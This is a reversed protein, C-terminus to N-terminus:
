YYGLINRLGPAAYEVLQKQKDPLESPLEVSQGSLNERATGSQKRDSGIKVREKWDGPLSPLGLVSLLDAFFTEAEKSELNKLHKIVHEYKVLKVGTGLWAVANHTFIEELTPAKQYIGFIMMNLMEEISVAGNKLHDMQGQFSDSLFFRARALVWDYPDRVILLQTTSKLGRAADDSFLLHGWSLVPKKSDFAQLHQKLNPHQIFDAHYQQEVPVFMRLINRMLHTGCKPVSNIFVPHTLPHQEFNKNLENLNDSKAFVRPM